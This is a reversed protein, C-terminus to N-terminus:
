IQGRQWSQMAIRKIADNDALRQLVIHCDYCNICCDGSIRHSCGILLRGVFYDSDAALNAVEFPQLFGIAASSPTLQFPKGSNTKQIVTFFKFCFQMPKFCFQM